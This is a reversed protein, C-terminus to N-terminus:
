LHALLRTGARALRIKGLASDRIQRVRERSLSLTQGITELSAPEEENRGYYRAVVGHEREDLLHLAEGVDKRLESAACRDELSLAAGDALTDVLSNAGDDLGADFSVLPRSAAQILHM